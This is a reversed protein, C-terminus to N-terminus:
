ASKLMDGHKLQVLTSGSLHLEGSMGSPLEDIERRYAVIKSVVLNVPYSPGEANVDVCSFSQSLGICGQNCIGRVVIEGPSASADSILFEITV